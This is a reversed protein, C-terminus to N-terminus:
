DLNIPELVTPKKDVTVSTKSTAADAYRGNLKDPGDAETSSKPVPRWTVTVKYSGAPAGDGTTYTTLTFKGDADTKAYPRPIKDNVQDPHFVVHAFGAGKGKVNIQGSVPYLTPKGDGCGTLAIMLIGLLGGLVLSRM